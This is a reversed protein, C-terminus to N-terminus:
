TVNGSYRHRLAGNKKPWSIRTIIQRGPPKNSQPSYVIHCHPLSYAPVSPSSSLAHNADNSIMYRLKPRFKLRFEMVATVRRFLFFRRRVIGTGTLENAESEAGTREPVWYPGSHGSFHDFATLIPTKARPSIVCREVADIKANRIPLFPTVHSSLRLKQPWEPGECLARVSAAGCIRSAPRRLIISLPRRTGGANRMRPSSITRDSVVLGLALAMSMPWLRSGLVM